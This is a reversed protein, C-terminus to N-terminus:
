NRLKLLKTKKWIRNEKRLESREARQILEKHGETYKHM